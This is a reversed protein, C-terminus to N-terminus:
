RGGGACACACACGACACGGGGHGGGSSVSAKALAKFVDGTVKDVGSLNVAGAPHQLQLGGPAIASALSGMTNEAWGAFSAGVDTFGTRGGASPALSPMPAPAALGPGRGSTGALPRIWMPRYAYGQPQLVNRFTNDMMIWELNRDISQEKMKVDGLSQAEALARRIISRYYDQTDSLDFGKMRSATGEILRRM